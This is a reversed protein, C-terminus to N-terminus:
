GASRYVEIVDQRKQLQRIVKDVQERSSVSLTMGITSTGKKDDVKASVARIPVNLEGIYMALEGLLSVHDYAIVQITTTFRGISEEAWSVRIAREPESHQANVCDAKHVTVGRGRTIYGVIDDGPVPNCCRAFRVLMGSEGKVTVGNSSSSPARKPAAEEPKAEPILAPEEAKHTKKYEEILRNLVQQTSLGGFGVMAYIDDASQVSYRKYLTEILDPKTLAPLDILREMLGAYSYVTNKM